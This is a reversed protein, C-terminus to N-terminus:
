RVRAILLLSAVGFMLNPLWAALWPALFASSGLALGVQMLVFYIFCIFISGAVGVFINRRGSPAGFPIAILVVVLCTWPAALRGHLMTHLWAYDAGTLNPHFKLYDLLDVIPIDAQKVRGLGISGAIKVESRIEDPSETFDRSALYNTEVAKFPLTETPSTQRWIEVKGEFAWYGNTYRGRDAFLWTMTGDAERWGVQVQQMEHRELDYTGIQWRRRERSNTFGLNHILRAGDMDGPNRVHRTKIDEAKVAARPVVFENIVLVLVSLFLGVVFYPAALRWISVGAARIATIEHNKAHHTLAYLLALLLAVPLIIVLIDPTALVYFEAIDLGTMKEKQWESLNALLDFAAWFILFGGLCFGLPLMLERLLYRDLLRM